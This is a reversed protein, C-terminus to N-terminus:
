IPIIYFNFLPILILNAVIIIVLYIVWSPIQSGGGGGSDDYSM